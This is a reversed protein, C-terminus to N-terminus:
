GECNGVFIGNSLSSFLGKWNIRFLSLCLNDSNYSCTSTFQMPAVSVAIEKATTTQDRWAVCERGRPTALGFLPQSQCKTLKRTQAEHIKMKASRCSRKLEVTSLLGFSWKIEKFLSIECDVNKWIFSFVNFSSFIIMNWLSEPRRKLPHPKPSPSSPGRIKGSFWPCHALKEIVTAIRSRDNLHAVVAGLLNISLWCYM